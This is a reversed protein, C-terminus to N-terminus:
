CECQSPALSPKFIEREMVQPVGKRATQHHSSHVEWRHLFQHVMFVDRHRPAIRMEGPIVLLTSDPRKFPNLIFDWCNECYIM